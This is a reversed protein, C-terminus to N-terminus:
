SSTPVRSCSSGVSAHGVSDGPPPLPVGLPSVKGRGQWGGRAVGTDDAPKAPADVGGESRRAEHPLLRGRPRSCLSSGRTLFGLGPQIRTRFSAAGAAAHRQQLCAPMGRSLGRAALCCACCAEGLALIVSKM